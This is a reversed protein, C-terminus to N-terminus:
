VKEPRGDLANELATREQRTLAPELVRVVGAPGLEVPMSGVAARVPGSAM